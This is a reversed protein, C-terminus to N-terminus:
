DCGRLFRTTCRVAEAPSVTVLTCEECRRRAHALCPGMKPEYMHLFTVDADAKWQLLKLEYLPLRDNPSADLIAQRHTPHECLWYVFPLHTVNRQANNQLRRHDYQLWFRQYLKYLRQGFFFLEIPNLVLRVINDVFDELWSWDLWPLNHVFQSIAAAPDALVTAIDFVTNSAGKVFEFAVDHKKDELLGDEEFISFISRSATDSTDDAVGLFALRGDGHQINTILQDIANRVTKLVMGALSVDPFFTNVLVHVFGFLSGLFDAKQWFDTSLNVSRLRELLALNDADSEEAALWCLMDPHVVFVRSAFAENTENTSKTEGPLAFPHLDILAKVKPVIRAVIYPSHRVSYTTREEKFDIGKVRAKLNDRTREFRHYTDSQITIRKGEQSVTAGVLELMKRETDDLPRDRTGVATVGYREANLFCLTRFASANKTSTDQRLTELVADIEDEEVYMVYTSAFRRTARLRTDVDEAETEFAICTRYPATKCVSFSACYYYHQGEQVASHYWRNVCTVDKENVHIKNPVVRFRTAGNRTWARFPDKAFVERATDQVTAWEKSTFKSRGELLLAILNADVLLADNPYERETDDDQEWYVVTELPETGKVKCEDTGFWRGCDDLRRVVASELDPTGGDNPLPFLLQDKDHVLHGHVTARVDRFESTEGRAVNDNWTYGEANWYKWFAYKSALPARKKLEGGPTICVGELDPAQLLQRSRELIRKLDDKRFADCPVPAVDGPSTAPSKTARFRLVCDRM